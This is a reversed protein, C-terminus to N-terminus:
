IYKQIFTDFLEYDKQINSASDLSNFNVSENFSLLYINCLFTYIDIQQNINFANLWLTVHHRRTKIRIRPLEFVNM